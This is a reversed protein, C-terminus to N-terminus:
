SGFLVYKMRYTVLSAIVNATGARRIQIEIRKVGNRANTPSSACNSACDNAQCAVIRTITYAPNPSTALVGAPVNVTLDPHCFGNLNDRGPSTTSELSDLRELEWRALSMAVARDTARLSGNLHEGLMIGLPAGLIGALAITLILEVLTLGFSRGYDM